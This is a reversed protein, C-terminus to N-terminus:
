ILECISKVYYVMDKYKEVALVYQKKKILEIAPNIYKNLMFNAIENKDKHKLLIDAIPPSILIYEALLKQGEVTKKMYNDRFFRLISLEYCNDEKGLIYCMATTLYCGNDHELGNSSNDNYSCGNSDPDYYRRWYSCYCEGHNNKDSLDMYSCYKCKSM